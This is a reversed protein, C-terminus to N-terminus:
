FVQQTGACLGTNRVTFVLKTVCRYRCMPRNMIQVGRAILLLPHMLCRRNAAAMYSCQLFSVQLLIKGLVQRLLPRTSSAAGTDAEVEMLRRVDRLKGRASALWRLRLWVELLQSNLADRVGSPDQSLRGSQVAQLTVTLVSFSCCRIMPDYWWRMNCAQPLQSLIKL